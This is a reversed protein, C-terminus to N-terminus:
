LVDALLKQLHQRARHIRVKVLNETAGTMAAVERVSNGGVQYLTYAARLEEPLAALAQVLRQRLLVDGENEPAALSCGDATTVAAMDEHPIHRRTRRWADTRLRGATTFLWTPPVKGATFSARHEWLRLFCEQVIDCATGYDAGNAVLWNLLRAAWQAYLANFAEESLM